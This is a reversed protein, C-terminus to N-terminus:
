WPYGMIPRPGTPCFGADTPMTPMMLPFMRNIRM